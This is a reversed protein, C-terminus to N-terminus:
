TEILSGGVRLVKLTGKEKSIKLSFAKTATKYLFSYVIVRFVAKIERRCISTEISGTINM